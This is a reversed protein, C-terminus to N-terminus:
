KEKKTSAVSNLKQRPAPKHSYLKDSNSELQILDDYLRVKLQEMHVSLLDKLKNSSSNGNQGKKELLIEEPEVGFTDIINQILSLSPSSVRREINAIHSDSIDLRESFEAQTLHLKLRLQLINECIIDSLHNNLKM